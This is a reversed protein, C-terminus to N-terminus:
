TAGVCYQAVLRRKIRMAKADANQGRHEIECLAFKLPNEPAKLVRYFSCLIECFMVISVNRYMIRDYKNSTM